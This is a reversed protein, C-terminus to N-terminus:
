KELNLAGLIEPLTYASNIANLYWALKERTEVSDTAPLGLELTAYQGIQEFETLTTIKTM